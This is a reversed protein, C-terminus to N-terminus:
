KKDPVKDGNAHFANGFDTLKSPTNLDAHCQGCNLGTQAGFQPTAQAPRPANLVIIAIAFMALLVAALPWAASKVSVPSPAQARRM